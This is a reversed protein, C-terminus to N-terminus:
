SRTVGLRGDFGRLTPTRTDTASQKPKRKSGRQMRAPARRFYSKAANCAVNLLPLKSKAEQKSQGCKNQNAAAIVSKANNAAILISKVSNASM